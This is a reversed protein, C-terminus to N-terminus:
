LGRLRSGAVLNFSFPLFGLVEIGTGVTGAASLPFYLLVKCPIVVGGVGYCVSGGECCFGAEEICFGTGECLGMGEFSM